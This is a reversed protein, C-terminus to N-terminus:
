CIEKADPIGLQQAATRRKESATRHVSSIASQCCSYRLSDQKQFQAELVRIGNARAFSATFHHFNMNLQPNRAPAELRSIACMM